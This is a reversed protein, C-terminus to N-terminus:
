SPHNSSTTNATVPLLADDNSALSGTTALWTFSIQAEIKENTFYSYKFYGGLQAWIPIVPHVCAFWISYKEAHPSAYIFHQSNNINLM